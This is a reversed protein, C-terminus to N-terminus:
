HALAAIHAPSLAEKYIRVDDILGSFFTGEDLTKGTCIHIDGIASLAVLDSEDSTDEKGDIYLSRRYGNWVLGVHHWQDDTIVKESTLEFFCLNTLLKGDIQDIGLWISGFGSGDTQSVIVQETAGGKIWTCVTFEGRSPNLIFPINIYDDSGDFELSGNRKGENSQWVPNGFLLGVNDGASDFAIDGDEEDLRWYAILEEPLSVEEFLHEALITLDQVDIINDGWPMPGIDCLPGNTNWHEVMIYIDTSDVIGDANFDVIPIISTQWLDYGGLGGSRISSFYLTKMDASIAGMVDDTSSNITPGLNIVQDWSDQRSKSLSMWLDGSGFSSSQGSDFFLVVGDPALSCRYQDTETNINGELRIPTNWPEQVDTRTSMWLDYTPGGVRSSAFFLVLDNAAIMPSMEHLPTNIPDGINVPTTWPDARSTRISMWIDHGGMGGARDSAGFGNLYDSFYLRLGDASLSPYVENYQSNVPAGINTPPEWPAQINPRTSVWIDFNGQGGPRDSAFFLELGDTSICCMGDSSNSNIALGMNQPEGFVFDARLGRTICLITLMAIMLRKIRNIQSIKM